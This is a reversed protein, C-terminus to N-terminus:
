TKQSAVHSDIAQTTMVVILLVEGHRGIGSRSFWVRTRNLKVALIFVSILKESITFM